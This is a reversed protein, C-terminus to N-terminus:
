HKEVRAASSTEKEFRKLSVRERENGKQKKGVNLRERLCYM